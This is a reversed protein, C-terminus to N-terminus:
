RRVAMPGADPRTFMRQREAFLTEPRSSWVCPEAPCHCNRRTTVLPHERVTTAAILREMNEVQEAAKSVQEVPKRVARVKGELRRFTEPATAIWATAPTMLRYVGVGGHRDARAHVIAASAPTPIRLRSILRVVPALLFSLLIALVM